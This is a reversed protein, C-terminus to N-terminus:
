RSAAPGHIRSLMVENSVYTDIRGLERGQADLLIIAPVHDVRYRELQRRGVRTAESVDIRLPVFKGFIAARVDPDRLTDHDLRVCEDSWDAWFSILIGRGTRKAERVADVEDHRWFGRAKNMYAAEPLEGIEVDDSAVDGSQVGSGPMGFPYGERKSASMPSSEARMDPMAWVDQPRQSGCGAAVVTVAALAFAYQARRAVM